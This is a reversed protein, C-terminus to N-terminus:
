FKSLFIRYIDIKWYIIQFVDYIEEDEDKGASKKPEPKKKVVM